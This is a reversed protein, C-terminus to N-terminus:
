PAALAQLGDAAIREAIRIADEIFAARASSRQAACRVAGVAYGLCAEPPALVPPMGAPAISGGAYFVANGLMSEPSTMPAEEAAAYAARRHSDTPEEIWRLASDLALRERAPSPRGRSQCAIIHAAWTVAELRPLAHGIYRLAEDPTGTRRIAQYAAHLDDAPPPQAAEDVGMLAAVQRAQTLKIAPWLTTETQMM